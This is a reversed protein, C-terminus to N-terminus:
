HHALVELFASTAAESGLSGGVDTTCRGLQLVEAAAGEIREAEQPYGLHELLMGLSRITGLPNAVGRGAIGPEVFLCQLFQEVACRM